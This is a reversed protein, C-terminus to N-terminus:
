WEWSFRGYVCEKRSVDVRAVFLRLNGSSSGLPHLAYFFGGDGDRQIPHLVFAMPSVINQWLCAPACSM